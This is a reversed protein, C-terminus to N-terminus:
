DALERGCRELAHGVVEDASFAVEEFWRNGFWEGPWEILLRVRAGPLNAELFALAWDQEQGSGEDQLVVDVLAELEARTLASDLAPERGHLRPPVPM